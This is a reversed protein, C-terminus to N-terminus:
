STLSNRRQFSCCKNGSSLLALSHGWVLICSHVVWAQVLQLAM